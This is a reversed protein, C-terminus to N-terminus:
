KVRHKAMHKLYGVLSDIEKKSLSNNGVWRMKMDDWERVSAPDLLFKRFADEKFYEVPNMPLNLDPGLKSTGQRNITHCVMCRDKYINFGNVIASDKTKPFIAPFLIRLDSEFRLGSLQYPWAEPPINSLEPDRWVLYFPGATLGKTNSAKPLPPWKEEEEIALFAESKGQSKTLLSTRELTGSFGDICKFLIIQDAKLNAEELLNKMPVAAVTVSRGPYNLLPITLNVKDARSLLSKTSHLIEKEGNFISFENSGLASSSLCLFFLFSCSLKYM